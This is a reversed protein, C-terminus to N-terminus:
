GNDESASFELTKSGDLGSSISETGSDFSEASREKPTVLRIVPFLRGILAPFFKGTNKM